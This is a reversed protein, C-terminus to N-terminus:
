DSKKPQESASQLAKVMGRTLRLFWFSSLVLLLVTVAPYQVREVPGAMTRVLEPYASSDMYWWTLWLPFLCVRFVLFSLWLLVGNVAYATTSKWGDLERMLLMNDLFVTTIECVGDLCGWFHLAGTFLGVTYCAISTVHHVTMLVLQQKDMKQSLQIGLHTVQRCVYLELFFRARPSTEGWREEATASLEWAGACAYWALVPYFPMSFVLDMMAVPDKHDPWWRKAVVWAPANAVLMLLMLPCLEVALQLATRPAAPDTPVTPLQPPTLLKLYENGKRIFPILGMLVYVGFAMRLTAQVPKAADVLTKRDLACMPSDPCSSYGVSNEASSACSDNDSDTDLSLMAPRRDAMAM